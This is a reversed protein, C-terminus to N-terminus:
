IMMQAMITNMPGTVTLVRGKDGILSRVQRGHIRGIETQDSTVAFIARDPYAARVEDIFSGENLLGCDVGAEAAQGGHTLQEALKACSRRFAKTM